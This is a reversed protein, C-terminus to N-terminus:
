TYNNIHASIQKITKAYRDISIVHKYLYQEHLRWRKAIDNYCDITDKVLGINVVLRKIVQM